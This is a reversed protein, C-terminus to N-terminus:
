QISITMKPIEEKAKKKLMEKPEMVVGSMSTM